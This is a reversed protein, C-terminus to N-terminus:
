GQCDLIIFTISILSIYMYIYIYIYIYISLSLSLFLSTPLDRRKKRSELSLSPFVSFIGLASSFRGCFFRIQSLSFAYLDLYSSESYVHSHKVHLM